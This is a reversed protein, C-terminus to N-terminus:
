SKASLREKKASPSRSFRLFNNAIWTWNLWLHLAVLALLVYAASEHLIEFAGPSLQDHLLGSMAQNLIVVFLLLNIVKLWSAKKM